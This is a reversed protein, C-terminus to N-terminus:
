ESTERHYECAEIFGRNFRRRVEKGWGNRQFLREPGTLHRCKLGAVFGFFQYMIWLLSRSRWYALGHGDCLRFDAWWWVSGACVKSNVARILQEIESEHFMDLFFHTVVLDIGNPVEDLTSMFHIAHSSSMFPNSQIRKLALDRMKSSTELIYFEANPMQAAAQSLFQGPGEGFILIRSRPRARSLFVSRARQMDRGYVIRELLTYFSAIRDFGSM